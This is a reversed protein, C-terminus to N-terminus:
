ESHLTFRKMKLGCGDSLCWSLSWHSLRWCSLRWASNENARSVSYEFVGSIAGFEVVASIANGVRRSTRRAKTEIGVDAIAVPGLVHTALFTASMLKTGIM